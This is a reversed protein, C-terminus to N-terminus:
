KDRLEDQTFISVFGSIAAGRSVSRIEWNGMFTVFRESKLFRDVNPYNEVVVLKKRPPMKDQM